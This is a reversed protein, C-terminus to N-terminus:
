ASKDLCVPHKGHAFNSNYFEKTLCENDLFSTDSTYSEETLIVQIGAPEAKYQLM